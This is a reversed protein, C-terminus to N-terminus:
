AAVTRRSHLYGLSAVATGVLVVTGISAAPALPLAGAIASGVAGGIMQGAGLIGSTLGADNKAAALAASFANPFAIGFGFALFSMTATFGIVSPAFANVGWTVVGAVLLLTIGGAFIRESSVYKTLIGAVFSGALLTLANLAFAIAFLTSSVHLQVVLAFPSGSIMAFYAFFSAFTFTALGATRPLRLVRRYATVIDQAVRPSTEPLARVVLVVLAIGLVSLAGYLPRWGLKALIGVGILPAIVPAIANVASLFAQRKTAGARETSVDQAIARACVTGACAGFGQAFRLAILMYVNTASACAFGALTFLALGGILVRRRGFRDSLPGLILQGFGFALVFASLTWQMAGGPAGLARAIVPLGPLSVDISLPPLMTLTGLLLLLWIGGTAMARKVSQSSGGGRNFTGRQELRVM